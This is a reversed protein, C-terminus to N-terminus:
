NNRFSQTFHIHLIFLFHLSIISLYELPGFSTVSTVHFDCIGSESEGLFHWQAVTFIIKIDENNMMMVIILMPMIM